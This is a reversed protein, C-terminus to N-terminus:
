GVFQYIAFNNESNVCKLMKAIESHYYAIDYRLHSSVFIAWNM